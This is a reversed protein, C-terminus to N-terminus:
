DARAHYRQTFWKKTEEPDIIVQTESGIKKLQDYAKELIEANLNAFTFGM